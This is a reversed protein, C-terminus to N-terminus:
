VVCMIAKHEVICTFKEKEFFLMHIFVIFNSIYAGTNNQQIQTEAGEATCTHVNTSVTPNRDTGPGRFDPCFKSNSDYKTGM